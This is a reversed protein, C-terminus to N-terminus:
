AAQFEIGQEAAYQAAYSDPSAVIIVNPSKEFADEQINSVSDPIECLKLNFCNAFAGSQIETIGNHLEVSELGTIGFAGAEIVILNKPIDIQKISGCGLFACFEIKELSSPLNIVSLKSCSEFAKEGIVILSEGRFYVTELELCGAFAEEGIIIVSEPLVAVKLDNEFKFAGAGIQTVKKGDIESPIVITDGGKYGLIRIGGDVEDYSYSGDSDEPLALLEAETYGGGNSDGTDPAGTEGGETVAATEAPPTTEPADDAGGAEKACGAAAFALLALTLAGITLRRLRKKM